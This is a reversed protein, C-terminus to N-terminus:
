IIETLYQVFDAKIPMFYIHSYDTSNTFSLMKKAFEKNWELSLSFDPPFTVKNHEQWYHKSKDTLVPAVGWFVDVGKLKKSYAQALEFDFFPQTFFGQAGADIKRRVYDCEKAVSGRYQDLAAYVKVKPLEKRFKKIFEIIDCPLFGKDELGSTDGLVLLVEGIDNGIIIDKFPLRKRKDVSVARLHPIAFKLIKKAFHAAELSDIEYRAIDPINITDVSPFNSRIIKLEEIFRDRQRPVLELSVRGM